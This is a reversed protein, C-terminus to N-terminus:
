ASSKLRPVRRAVDSLRKMADSLLYGRYLVMLSFALWVYKGNLDSTSFGSVIIGLFAGELVLRLEYRSSDGLALRHLVRFQLVVAALFIVCGIVGLETAITLPVNHAAWDWGLLNQSYVNLYERDFANHFNGVGAGALWYDRFAHMGINWIDRRGAGGDQQADAFRTPLGPNAILTVLVAVVFLSALWLRHRSRLILYAFVLGLEIYGGRSGSAAFGLLLIALAPLMLIVLLFHRSNFLWYLAVATPLVLAAALANPDIQSDGVVIMVRSVGANAAILGQGNHYLYADYGGSIVGALVVSGLIMNFERYTVKVVALLVFLAVLSAYTQFTSKAEDVSLAWFMSVCMWLLLLAWAAVAWPASITSGRRMVRVLIAGATLLGLLKALTGGSGLSSLSDFPLLLIYACFPFVLPMRLACYACLPAVATVALLLLTQTSGGKVFGNAFYLVVLVYFIGALVIPRRLVSVREIVAAPSLLLGMM